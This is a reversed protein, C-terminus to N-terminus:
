PNITNEREEEKEKEELAEAFPDKEEIEAEKSSPTVLTQLPLNASNRGLAYGILLFILAVILSAGTLICAHLLQM